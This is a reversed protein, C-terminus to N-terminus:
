RICKDYVYCWNKYIDPFTVSKKLIKPIKECYFKDYKKKFVRSKLPNEPMIGWQKKM